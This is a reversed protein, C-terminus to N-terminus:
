VQTKFIQASLASRQVYSSGMIRLKGDSYEVHALAKGCWTRRDVALTLSCLTPGRRGLHVHCIVRVVRKASPELAWETRIKGSLRNPTM